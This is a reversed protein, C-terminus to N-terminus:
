IHKKRLKSLWLLLLGLLIFIICLVIIMYFVGIGLTKSSITEPAFGFWGCEAGYNIFNYPALMDDSWRVNFVQALILVYGVYILPPITAYLAYIKKQRFEYDFLIFDLISLLPTIFHVCLSACCKDTYAGIFGRKDTPALVCLYILFTLLISITMLYKIIYWSNSPKKRRIVLVLSIILCLDIAINSLNTFYTLFEKNLFSWSMGYLSSIIAVTKIIISFTRNKNM